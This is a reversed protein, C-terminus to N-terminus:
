SAEKRAMEPRCALWQGVALALLQQLSLNEVIAIQKLRTATDRPVSFTMTMDSDEPRGQPRTLFQRINRKRMGSIRNRNRSFSLDALGWLQRPTQPIALFRAYGSEVSLLM